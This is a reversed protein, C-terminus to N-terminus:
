IQFRLGVTAIHAKLKTELQLDYLNITTKDEDHVTEMMIPSTKLKGFNHYRYGIDVAIYNNLGITLGAGLIETKSRKDRGFIKYETTKDSGLFRVDGLHIDSIGVGAMIYPVFLFYPDRRHAAFDFYINASSGKVDLDSFYYRTDIGVINSGTIALDKGLKFYSLEFRFPGTTNVGFAASWMYEDKYDLLIPNAQSDENCIFDSVLLGNCKNTDTFKMNNRTYFYGINGAFYIRKLKPYKSKSKSRPTEEYDDYVVEESFSDREVRTSPSSSVKIEDDDTYTKKAVRKSKKSSKKTATSPSAQREIIVIRSIAQNSAASEKKAASASLAMSSIWILVLSKLINKM